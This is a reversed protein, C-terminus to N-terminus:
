KKNKATKEKLRDRISYDGFSLDRYKFRYKKRICDALCLSNIALKLCLDYGHDCAEEGDLVDFSFSLSQSAFIVQQQFDFIRDLLHLDFNKYDYDPLEPFIPIKSLLDGINGNSSKANCHDDLASMCDYTYKELMHAINLAVHNVRSKTENKSKLVSVVNTLVASLLSSGLIITLVTSTDM